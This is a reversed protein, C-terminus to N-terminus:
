PPSTLITNDPPVFIPFKLYVGAPCIKGGVSDKIGYQHLM